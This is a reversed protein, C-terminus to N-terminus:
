AEARVRASTEAPCPATSSSWSAPVTEGTQVTVDLFPCCAGCADIDELPLGQDVVGQAILRSRQPRQALRHVQGLRAAVHAGEDVQSRFHGTKEGAQTLLVAVAIENSLTSCAKGEVAPCTGSRDVEVGEVGALCGQDLRQGEVLLFDELQQGVVGPGGFLDGLAQEDRVPRHLAVQGVDVFLEAYVVASFRYAIPSPM